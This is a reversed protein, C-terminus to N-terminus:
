LEYHQSQTQMLNMLHERTYNNSFLNEVAVPFLVSILSVMHTSFIKCQKSIFGLCTVNKKQDDFFTNTKTGVTAITPKNKQIHM